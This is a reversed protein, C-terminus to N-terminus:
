HQGVIHILRLRLLAQGLLRQGFSRAVDTTGLVVGFRSLYNIGYRTNQDLALSSNNVICIPILNLEQATGCSYDTM